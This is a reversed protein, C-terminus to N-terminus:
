NGIEACFMLALSDADLLLQYIRCTEATQLGFLIRDSALALPELYGNANMDGLEEPLSVERWATGDYLTMACGNGHSAMGEAAVPLTTEIICNPELVFGWSDKLRCEEAKRREGTALNLTYYGDNPSFMLLIHGSLYPGWLDLGAVSGITELSDGATRYLVSFDGDPLTSCLAQDGGMHYVASASAGVELASEEVAADLLVHEGSADVRIITGRFTGDEQLLAMCAVMHDPFLTFREVHGGAAMADQVIYRIKRDSGDLNMQVLVQGRLSSNEYKKSDDCTYILEDTVLIENGVYAGCNYDYQKHSCQPKNCVPVWKTLDQKDAYYLIDHFVYYYGNPTEALRCRGTNACRTFSAAMDLPETSLAGMEVAQVEYVQEAAKEPDAQVPEKACGFLGFLFYAALFIIACKKM